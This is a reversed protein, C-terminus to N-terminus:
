TEEFSCTVSVPTQLLFYGVTEATSTILACLVYIQAYRLTLRNLHHEISLSISPLAYSSPFTLQRGQTRLEKMALTHASNAMRIM